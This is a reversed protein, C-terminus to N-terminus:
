HGPPATGGAGSDAPRGDQGGRRGARFSIRFRLCEGLGSFINRWSAGRALGSTRANHRVDVKAVRFGLAHARIIREAQEFVGTCTTEIRAVPRRMLKISGPDWVKVGYLAETLIRFSSSIAKRWPTYQKDARNGIVLDCPITRLAELMPFVEDMPWQGDSANLFVLDKSAERCLTKLSSVIGGNREHRIVRLRPHRRALEALRKATGDTSADDVVLVEHDPAARTATALAETVAREINDQENFAPIGITLSEHV